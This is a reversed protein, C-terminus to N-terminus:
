KLYGEMKIRGMSVSAMGNFAPKACFIIGEVQCRSQCLAIPKTCAEHAAASAYLNMLLTALYAPFRLAHVVRNCASSKPVTMAATVAQQSNNLAKLALLESIQM